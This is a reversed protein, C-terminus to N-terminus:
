SPANGPQNKWRARLGVIREEGKFLRVFNGRLSYAVILATLLGGVIYAPTIAVLGAWRGTIAIIIFVIPIIVGMMMSAVSAWGVFYLMGAMVIFAVPFMPPFVASAWGVNPGTGAGGRFGVYISWNHGIVSFVGASAELWPMLDAPVFNGFVLRVILVAVIGKLVDSLSTLLGITLGGARLSNTGGTRGSGVDLIDIGRFYRVYIRGFPIAGLFYGICIAGLFYLPIM